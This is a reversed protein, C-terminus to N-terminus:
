GKTEPYCKILRGDFSSFLFCREVMNLLFYTLDHVLEVACADFVDLCQLCQLSRKALSKISREKLMTRVRLGYSFYCLKNRYSFRAKTFCLFM